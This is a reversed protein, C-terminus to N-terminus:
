HTTDPAAHSPYIRGRRSVLGPAFESVPGLGKAQGRASAAPRNQTPHKAPIGDPSNGGNATQEAQKMQCQQFHNRFQALTPSNNRQGRWDNEYWDSLAAGISEPTAGAAVFALTEKGLQIIQGQTLLPSNNDIRCAQAIALRVPHDKPLSPKKDKLPPADQPASVDQQSPTPQPQSELIGDNTKSLSRPSLVKAPPSSVEDCISEKRKNLTSEKTPLSEKSSQAHLHNLNKVVVPLSEKSTLDSLQNLNKVVQSAMNLSYGFGQGRQKRQLIGREMAANIGEVVSPKSLGTKAVLQSLSLEDEQKHYGFTQRIIVTVVKLESLTNIQPLVDDFFANPTQTYNPADFGGSKKDNM